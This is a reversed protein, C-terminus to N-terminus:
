GRIRTRNEQIYIPRYFKTKSFWYCYRFALLAVIPIFSPHFQQPLINWLFLISLCFLGNALFYLKTYVGQKKWFLLGASVGHLPHLWLLNYNDKTAAHDTAIWLLLVVTGAIGCLLFLVIDPGRYPTKKRCWFTAVLSVALLGGFIVMPTGYAPDTTSKTQKPYLTIERRVLPERKGNREVTSQGLSWSAYDPLFLYDIAPARRDVRAGLALDIGFDGWPHPKAYRDILDRFSQNNVYSVTDLQLRDGLVDRLLDRIRTVCNDYFFDYSYYRHEPQLNLLLYDYVAQREAADLNLVQERIARNHQISEQKLYSFDYVGLWYKLTGQAFKLYFNGEDFSFMGYNFVVDYQRASDRVRLASHGFAAYLDGGPSYTLLSITAQSSLPQACLPLLGTLLLVVLCACRGLM